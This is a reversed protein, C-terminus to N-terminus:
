EIEFKTVAGLDLAERGVIAELATQAFRFFAALDGIRQMYLDALAREEDSMQARAQELKQMNEGIVRLAVEVERRERGELVTSIIKWLDTEAEYYKRRDGRVWVERVTGWRELAQMTMSVNGKSIDLREALEDLSLPKASLLLVGYLQGMVKSFGFFTALRGLGEITSTNVAELDKQMVGVQNM